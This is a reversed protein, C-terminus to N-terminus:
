VTLDLTTREVVREGELLWTPPVHDFDPLPEGHKRLSAILAEAAEGLRQRLEEVTRGDSAAGPLAPLFGYLSGDEEACVVMETRVLTATVRHGDM